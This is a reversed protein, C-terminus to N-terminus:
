FEHIIVRVTQGPLGDFAKVKQITHFSAEVNIDFRYQCPMPAASAITKVLRKRNLNEEGIAQMLLAAFPDWTELM